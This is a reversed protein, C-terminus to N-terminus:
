EPVWKGVVVGCITANGNIDIYRPKWEPNLAKLMKRGDEEMYQKFTAREQDDLRAVVRDGPKHWRDPDVFIIDGPEYSPRSDPNRMSEGEVILCFTKPGHKVPCPLWDLADSQLFSGAIEAWAGAQVSTLLPVMGRIEPGEHTNSLSATECDEGDQRPGKGDRLWEARVGVAKAIALLERPNKRAGSEVNGITGASVGARKALEPQTLGAAERAEKLRNAITKM